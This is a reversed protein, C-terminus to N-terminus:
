KDNKKKFVYAAGLGVLLLVGGGLPTAADTDKDRNHVNPMNIMGGSNEDSRSNYKESQREPGRGFMGGHQAFASCAMGLVIAITFVTKKM